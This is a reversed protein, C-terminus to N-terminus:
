KNAYKRKNQHAPAATLASLDCMRGASAPRRMCHTHKPAPAGNRLARCAWSCQPFTNPVRPRGLCGPARRWWVKKWNATCRFYSCKGAPPLHLGAGKRCSDRRGAPRWWQEASQWCIKPDLYSFWSLQFKVQELIVVEVESLSWNWKPPNPM